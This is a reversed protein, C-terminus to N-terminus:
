LSICLTGLLQSHGYTTDGDLICPQSLEYITDGVLLEYLRRTGERKACPQQHMM